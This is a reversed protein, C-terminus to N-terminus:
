NGTFPKEELSIDRKFSLIVIVTKFLIKLDLWFSLQDVYDLDLKFKASWPLSHRGNVQTLGTIGPLVSHRRRQEESYLPLYGVPLPRPGVISMDGKLVNWLQPLEDLSTWRLFSGISTLRQEDIMGGNENDMTRFKLIKFIREKFGVRDQLFFVDGRQFLGLL